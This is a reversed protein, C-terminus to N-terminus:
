GPQYLLNLFAEAPVPLRADKHRIIRFQREVQFDGVSVIRLRGDQAESTVALRSVMGIGVGAIVAQKIAENSPLALRLQWPVQHARLAQEAVHRSASGPERLVWAEHALDALPVTTQAALRHSPPVILVLADTYYPYTELQPHEVMNGTVGLDWQRALMGAM